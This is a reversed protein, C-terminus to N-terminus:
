GLEKVAVIEGRENIGEVRFRGHGARIHHV